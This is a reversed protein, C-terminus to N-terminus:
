SSSFYLDLHRLQQNLTLIELKIYLAEKIKVQFSSAASDLISFYEASSSDRCTESSQLLKYVHSVKDLVLHKFVRTCIHRTTEGIYCANCGACTINYVVPSLLILVLDKM